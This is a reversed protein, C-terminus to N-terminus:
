LPPPNNNLPDEVFRKFDDRTTSQCFVCSYTTEFNEPIDIAINNGCNSDIKIFKIVFKGDVLHLSLTFLYEDTITDFVIIIYPSDHSTQEDRHTILFAFDLLVLCSILKSSFQKLCM